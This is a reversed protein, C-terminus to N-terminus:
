AIKALAGPKMFPLMSALLKVSQESSRRVIHSADIESPHNLGAAQVLEKLLAARQAPETSASVLAQDPSVEVIQALM